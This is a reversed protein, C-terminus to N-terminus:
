WQQNSSFGPTLPILEPVVVHIREFAIWEHPYALHDVIAVLGGRGKKVIYDYFVRCVFYEVRKGNHQKFLFLTAFVPFSEVNDMCFEVIQSQPICLDDMTYGPPPVFLVRYNVSRRLRCITVPLQATPDLSVDTKKQWNKFRDSRHAIFVDKAKAITKKGDTAAIVARGIPILDEPIPQQNGQGINAMREEM